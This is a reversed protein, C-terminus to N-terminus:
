KVHPKLGLWYGDRAGINVSNPLLLLPIPTKPTVVIEFTKLLHCLFIKTEMIAFRMGICNRPGIGFPLFTGPVLKDKDEGFREPDFKRPEPYYKRDNHFGLVPFMIATDKPIHVEKDGSKLTFPVTCKRDLFIAAPWKRTTESVVMDLYKMKTVSDYTFEGNNAELSENIENLLKKQVEPSLALEYSIFCVLTSVGELGAMFFVVSQAIVDEDDLVIAFFM